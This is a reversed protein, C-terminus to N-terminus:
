KLFDYKHITNLLINYLQDSMNFRVKNIDLSKLLNGGKTRLTASKWDNIMEVIDFLDMGDIGMEYHEPHHSNNEYHHKLAVELEKLSEKYEDSGYTLNNLIPTWKDFLSKEPEELKSNDHVQARNILEKSSELLLRNVHKIHELTDAKSDYKITQM